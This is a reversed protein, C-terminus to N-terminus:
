ESNALRATQFQWHAAIQRETANFSTVYCARSSTSPSFSGTQCDSMGGVDRAAVIIRRQLVKQGNDSYIDLDNFNVGITRAEGAIQSEAMGPSAITAAAILGLSIIKFM